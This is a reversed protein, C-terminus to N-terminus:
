FIDCIILRTAKAMKLVQQNQNTKRFILTCIRILETIYMVLAHIFEQKEHVFFVRGLIQQELNEGEFFCKINNILLTASPVHGTSNRLMQKRHTQVSTTWLLKHYANQPSKGLYNSSQLKDKVQQTYNRTLLTKARQHTEKSHSYTKFCANLTKSLTIPLLQAEINIGLIPLLQNSHLKVGALWDTQM